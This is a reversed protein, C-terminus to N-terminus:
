VHLRRLVTGWAGSRTKAEPNLFPALPEPHFVGSGREEPRVRSGNLEGLRGRELGSELRGSLSGM